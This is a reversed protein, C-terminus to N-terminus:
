DDDDDTETLQIVLGNPNAPVDLNYLFSLTEMDIISVVSDNKCTVFATKGDPSFRVNHPGLGTPIEAVETHPPIGLSVDGQVDIVSVFDTSQNPVVSYRGNPTFDPTNAGLGADIFKVVENITTDIVAVQGSSRNGVYVWRGDATIRPNHSGPKAFGNRIDIQKIVTDPHEGNLQIVAVSGEVNVVYLKSGDPTIRLGNPKVKDPANGFLGFSIEQILPFGDEESTSIKYASNWKNNGFYVYKGDPTMVGDHTGSRRDAIDAPVQAVEVQHEVDIVSVYGGGNAVKGTNGIFAFHSDQTWQMHTPDDGVPLVGSGVSTDVTLTDVNYFTVSDGKRNDGIVHEGDPSVWPHHSKKQTSDIIALNNYPPMGCFVSMFGNNENANANNESSVWIRFGPCVMDDPPSGLAVQAGGLLGIACLGSLVTKTAHRNTNM